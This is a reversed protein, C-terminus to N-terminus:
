HLDRTQVSKKEIAVENSIIYDASDLFVPIITFGYHYLYSPLM